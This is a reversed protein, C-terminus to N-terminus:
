GQPVGSKMKPPVQAVSARRSVMPGYIKPMPGMVGFGPDTSMRDATFTDPQILGLGPALGKGSRLNDM